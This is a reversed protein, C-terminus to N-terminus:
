KGTWRGFIQLATWGAGLGAAVWYAWARFNQWVWRRFIDRTLLHRVHQRERPIFPGAPQRDIEKDDDM